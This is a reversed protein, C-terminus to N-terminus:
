HSNKIPTILIESPEVSLIKIPDHGPVNVENVTVQVNQPEKIDKASVSARFLMSLEPTDTILNEPIRAKVTISNPQVTVPTNSERVNIPIKKVSKEVLKEGVELVATVVTEGILDLFDQDLNLHVQLTTSRDLGDLKIVYTKLALDKDIISKPGSIVLQDPDLTLKKLEYGTAPEGETVPDILFTRQVLNDLLLTINAPQLRLVVIGKPFPISKEDNKIVITGPKANSLDVPRSINKNKLDQVMSRPGRVTVEINKKYQNSITLISPLNIVEIPVQITIDVQDEGVVFYWLMIALGLSILKLLWNKQTFKIDSINIM